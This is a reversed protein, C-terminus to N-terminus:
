GFYGHPRKQIAQLGSTMDVENVTHGRAQLARVTDPPFRGAELLTPGNNSGFNPLDIARQADLGWHLMGVLTKATYHIIAAGGPSGLTALLPLLASVPLLYRSAIKPSCSIMALYGLPLLVTLWEPPTRRRATGLLAFAGPLLSFLLTIGHLSRPTQAANAVYGHYALLWGIMASGIALGVKQVFVTASFVLGTTRRGFKWEGYDATDAYMSWVIAPTPGAVFSALINLTYLLPLNHPDVVYFAAMGLANLITLSIMLKRRSALRTFLKTSLAGGIFALFGVLNFTGLWAEHGIVYKFYYIASGSRMGTNALTLFGAFFLVLWPGNRFLVRLDQGLSSDQGVPPVVRERTNFFTYLFM